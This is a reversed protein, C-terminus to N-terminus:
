DEEQKEQLYARRLEAKERRFGAIMLKYELIVKKANDIEPVTMGEVMSLKIDAIAVNAQSILVNYGSLEVDLDTKIAATLLREAEKMASENEKRALEALDYKAQDIFWDVYTPALGHGALERRFDGEDLINALFMKRLDTRSPRKTKAKRTIDWEEIYRDIETSPLPITSLQSVVDTRSIQGGVYLTKVSKILDDALRNARKLDVQALYAEAIWEPYDIGTLLSMAEAHSIRGLNYAVLVDSKSADRTEEGYERLTFETLKLAKEADYGIDMYATVVEEASSLVGIQYM